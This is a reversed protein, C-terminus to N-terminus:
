DQFKEFRVVQLPCIPVYPIKPFGEMNYQVM